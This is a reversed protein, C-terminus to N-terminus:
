IIWSVNKHFEAFLIMTKRVGADHRLPHSQLVCARLYFGQPACKEAPKARESTGRGLLRGHGDRVGLGKGDFPLPSRDYGNGGSTELSDIMGMIQLRLRGALDVGRVIGEILDQVLQRADHLKGPLM